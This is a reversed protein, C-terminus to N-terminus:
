PQITSIKRHKRGSLLIWFTNLLFPINVLFAAASITILISESNLGFSSGIVVYYLIGDVLNIFAFVLVTFHVILSVFILAPQSRDSARATAKRFLRELPMGPILNIMLLASPLMLILLWELRHIPILVGAFLIDIGFNLLIVRLLNMFLRETKTKM